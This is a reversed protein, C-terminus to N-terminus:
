LLYILKKMLISSNIENAIAKIIVVPHLESSNLFMALVLAVLATVYKTAPGIGATALIAVEIANSSNTGSSGFSFSTL